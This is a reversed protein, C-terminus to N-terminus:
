TFEEYVEGSICIDLFAIVDSADTEANERLFAKVKHAAEAFAAKEEPTFAAFWGPIAVQGRAAHDPDVESETSFFLNLVHELAMEALTDM